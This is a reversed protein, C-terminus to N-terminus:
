RMNKISDKRPLFLSGIAEIGQLCCTLDDNKTDVSSMHDTIYLSVRVENQGPEKPLRM